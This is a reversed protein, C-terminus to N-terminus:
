HQSISAVVRINIENNDALVAELKLENDCSGETSSNAELNSIVGSKPGRVPVEPMELSYDVEVAHNNDNEVKVMYFSEGGCDTIKTFFKVGEVENLLKWETNEPSFSSLSTILLGASAFMTLVRKSLNFRGFTFKSFNM